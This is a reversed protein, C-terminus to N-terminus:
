APAGDRERDLFRALSAEAILWRGAVLEGAIEGLQVRRVVQERSLPVGADRARQCAEGSTLRREM